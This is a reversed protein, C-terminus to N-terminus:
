QKEQTNNTEFQEIASKLDDIAQSLSDEPPKHQPQKPLDPKETTTAAMVWRIGIASVNDSKPAAEEAASEVLTNIINTFPIDSSFQEGMIQEKTHTWLGDSCLLIVDGHKLRASKSVTIEPSSINGGLCRTVYNRQPHKEMEDHTILGHHELQQVYSHDVTRHMAKGNRFIYLRSDGAHSWRAVGDQILAVVATTRPKIPPKHDLGYATINEHAKQLLRHLFEKPSHIPKPAHLFFSNCTDTLIQAAVEGKPHGGMGDALGLLISGESEISIYRDQNIKRDGQLTARAIQTRSM